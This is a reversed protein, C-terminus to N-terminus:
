LSHELDILLFPLYFVFMCPATLVVLSIREGLWENITNLKTAWFWIGQVFGGM